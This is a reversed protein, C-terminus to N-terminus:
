LGGTWIAGVALDDAHQWLRPPCTKTLFKHCRRQVFAGRTMGFTLLEKVVEVVPIDQLQRSTATESLCQFTSVGDSLVAVMMYDALPFSWDCPAPVGCYVSWTPDEINKCSSVKYEEGFKAIYATRRAGDLAYSLYGPANKTHEVTHLELQGDRRRAAIVGDGWMRVRVRDRDQLAAVMTADFSTPSLGLWDVNLRLMEVTREPSPLIGQQLQAEAAVALLRSGFDTDPSSSCGDCVVAYPLGDKTKGARAYDQCVMHTKGMAFFADSNPEVTSM